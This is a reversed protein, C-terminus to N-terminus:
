APLMFEGNQYAKILKAAEKSNYLSWGRARAEENFAEWGAVGSFSEFLADAVVDFIDAM